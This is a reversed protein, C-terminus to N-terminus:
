AELVPTEWAVDVVESLRAADLDTARHSEVPPTRPPVMWLHPQGLTTMVSVEGNMGTLARVGDLEFAKKM